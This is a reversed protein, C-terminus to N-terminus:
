KHYKMGRQITFIRYLQELLVPRVIQHSMTLPSFSLVVDARKKISESLGHSSGILFTFSNNGKNQRMMFFHSLEISSFSKGREDLAIIYDRHNLIKDLRKAEKELAMEPSSLVAEDKVYVLILDCFNRLKKEFDAIAEDLYREKNKGLMILTIKM